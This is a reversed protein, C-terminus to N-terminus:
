TTVNLLFIVSGRFDPTFYVKCLSANRRKEVLPTGPDFLLFIAICVVLASVLLHQVITCNKIVLRTCRLVFCTLVSTTCIYLPSCLIQRKSTPRHELAIFGIMVNGINVMDVVSLVRFDFGGRM